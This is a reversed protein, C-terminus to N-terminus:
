GSLYDIKANAKALSAGLQNVERQATTLDNRLRSSDFDTETRYIDFQSQVEELEKVLDSGDETTVGTGNSISKLAAAGKESRALMARLADREKVYAQIVNDSNRKQADLQGAMEQMAEHAERIAEAQEREMAERYEREESELKEALERVIKLLRQNQEQLKDISKFLVLNNTIMVDTDTTPLAALDEDPPITPDDRRTLERLLTQVQHGLDDLQKQM